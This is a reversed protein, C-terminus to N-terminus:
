LGKKSNASVEIKMHLHAYTANFGDYKTDFVEAYGVGSIKQKDVSQCVEYAIQIPRLDGVGYLVCFDHPILVDMVFVEDMIQRTMGPFNFPTFFINISQDNLVLTNFKKFHLIGDKNKNDNIIFQPSVNDLEPSLPDINDETYTIYRLFNQNELLKDVLKRNHASTFKFKLSKTDM